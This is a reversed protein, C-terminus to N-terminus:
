MDSDVLAAPLSSIDILKTKIDNGLDNTQTAYILSISNAPSSGSFSGDLNVPWAVPFSPPFRNSM